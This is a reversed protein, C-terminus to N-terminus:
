FLRVWVCPRVSYYSYSVFDGYDFVSGDRNVFAVCSSGLGPSRLWWRCAGSSATYAGQKIAYDTPYCIRSSDDKSYENAETISLLFVNDSTDKGPDTSYNPNKDATVKSKVIKQKEETSFAKNYFEGNLWSRLTCTEWSVDAWMENYPKADLAYKSILLAEDGQVDLVIWEIPAKFVGFLGQPYSGFEVTVGIQLDVCKEPLTEANGISFFSLVFIVCFLMATFRKM